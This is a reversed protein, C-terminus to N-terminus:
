KPIGTQCQTTYLSDLPKAWNRGQNLAYECANDAKAVEIAALTDPNSSIAPIPHREHMAAILRLARLSRAREEATALSPVSIRAALSQADWAVWQQLSERLGEIDGSNIHQLQSARVVAYSIKHAFPSPANARAPVQGLALAPIAAIACSLLRRRM